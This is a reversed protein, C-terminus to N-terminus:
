MNLLFLLLFPLLRLKIPSTTTQKPVNRTRLTSFASPVFTDLCYHCVIRRREGGEGDNAASSPSSPTSFYSSDQSNSSSQISSSGRGRGRRYGGRGRRSLSRKLCIANMTVGSEYNPFLM